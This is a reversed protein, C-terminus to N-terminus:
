REFYIYMEANCTNCFDDGHPNPTDCQTCHGLIWNPKKDIKEVPPLFYGGELRWGKPYRLDAGCGSCFEEDNPNGTGCVTCEGGVLRTSVKVEM